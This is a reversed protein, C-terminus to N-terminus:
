EPRARARRLWEERWSESSGNVDLEVDWPLDAVPEGRGALHNAVPVILDDENLRKGSRAM